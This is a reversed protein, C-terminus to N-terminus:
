RNEAGKTSQCSEACKRSVLPRAFSVGWEPATLEILGSFYGFSVIDNMSPAFSDQSQYIHFKHDDLIVLLAKCKTLSVLENIKLITTLSRRNFQQTQLKQKTSM